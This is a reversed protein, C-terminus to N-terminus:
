QKIRVRVGNGMDQWGDQAPASFDSSAGNGVGQAKKVARDRVATVIERFEKAAAKFAEESQATQMRAIANTAKEGEIQTIQGGGKLIEYAELFQKGGLQDRLAMFDAEKTGAAPSDMLGFGSSWNKMGVAGPLGPHQLMQDIIGITQDTSAVVRPLDIQAQTTTKGILKGSEKAGALQGQLAPDLTGPIARQGNVMGPAIEGTRANGVLYGDAGPLFQYYPDPAGGGQALQARQAMAERNLRNQEAMFARQAEQAQQQAIRQQQAMNEQFRRTEAAQGAQFQRADQQGRLQIGYAATDPNQMLSEVDGGKLAEALRQSRETALARSEDEAMRVGKAGGYAKLMQALGQTWSPGVYVRGAMGGQPAEMGQARLAEAYQARRNIEQQQADYPSFNMTPM